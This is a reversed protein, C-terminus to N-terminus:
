AALGALADLVADPDAHDGANTSRQSYIVEGGRDLVFVGGQQWADGQVGKQRFGKSFARRASSLLGLNFTAGISRKLSAAKYTRLSPDTLLPFDIEM